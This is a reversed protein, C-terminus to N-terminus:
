KRGENGAIMRAADYRDLFESREECFLVGTGLRHAAERVHREHDEHSPETLDRLHLITDRPEKLDNLRGFYTPCNTLIEIVSFGHHRLADKILDRCEHFDYVTSRAVFSAGAGAALRCIDFECDVSGAMSTTSRMGMPTTPALQGGTQGYISNNYVLATIDLNRRCAHIFHNGGIATADGDGMVAIVNLEPSALKIGTAFALARGHLAHLTNFDLIFPTRGSCGIGGVVVVEDQNWGLGDVAEILAKTTIGNGCGPCWVSPLAAKRLFRRASVSV